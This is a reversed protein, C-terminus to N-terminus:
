KERLFMKEITMTELRRIDMWHTRIDFPRLAAVRINYWKELSNCSVRGFCFLIGENIETSEIVLCTPRVLCTLCPIEKYIAQVVKGLKTNM